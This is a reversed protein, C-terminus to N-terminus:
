LMPHRVGHWFAKQAPSLTCAWSAHKCLKHLINHAGHEHYDFSIMFANVRCQQMVHAFKPPFKDFKAMDTVSAHFNTTADVLPKFGKSKHRAPMSLPTNKVSPTHSISSISTRKVFTRCLAGPRVFRFEDSNM